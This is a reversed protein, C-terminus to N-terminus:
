VVFAHLMGLVVEKKWFWMAHGDQGCEARAEGAQQVVQRQKKGSQVQEM